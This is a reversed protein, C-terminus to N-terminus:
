GHAATGLLPARRWVSATRRRQRLHAEMRFLRECSTRYTGHDHRRVRRTSRAQLDCLVQCRPTVVLGSQGAYWDRTAQVDRFTRVDNRLHYTCKPVQSCRRICPHTSSHLVSAHWSVVAEMGVQAVLFEIVPIAMCTVRDLAAASPEQPQQRTSQRGSGNRSHYWFLNPPHLVPFGPESYMATPM